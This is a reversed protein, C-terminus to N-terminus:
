PFMKSAGKTGKGSDPNITIKILLYTSHPMSPTTTYKQEGQQRDRQRETESDRQRATQSVTQSDSQSAFFFVESFFFFFLHTHQRTRLTVGRGERVHGHRVDATGKVLDAELLVTILDHVAAVRPAHEICLHTPPPDTPAQTPPHQKEKTKNKCPLAQM